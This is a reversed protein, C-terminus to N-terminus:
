LGVACLCVCRTGPVLLPLVVSSAPTAISLSGSPALNNVDCAGTPSASDTMGNAETYVVASAALAPCSGAVGVLVVLPALDGATTFAIKLEAGNADWAKSALPSTCSTVTGALGLSGLATQVSSDMAADYTICSTTLAGYQLKFGGTSPVLTTSLVATSAFIIRQSERVSGCQSDFSTLIDWEVTYSSVGSATGLSIPATWSVTLGQANNNAVAIVRPESPHLNSPLVTMPLTRGPQAFATTAFTTPGTGYANVAAVRVYTATQALGTILYSYPKVGFVTQDVGKSVEDVVVDTVAASTTLAPLDGHLTVFYVQITMATGVAPITATSPVFDVLVRGVTTMEEIVAAVQTRTM